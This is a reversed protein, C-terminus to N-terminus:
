PLAQYFNSLAELPNDAQYIARGIILIDGDATLPEHATSLDIGGACAILSPVLNKLEQIIKWSTKKGSIEEDIGRHIIIVNPFEQLQNIKTMVERVSLGLTDLWSDIGLTRCESIFGTITEIPALGSVVGANAGGEYGIKVELKGVDLTKFDAIIYNDPYYKRIVPVIRVLGENKMLPTGVEILLEHFDSKSIKSLLEEVIPLYPIDIALQIYPPDDLLKKQLKM